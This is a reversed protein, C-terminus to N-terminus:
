RLITMPLTEVHGNMRVVCWYNGPALDSGDFAFSHNEVSLEGTYLSAVEAGLSNVISIEAYGSETATFSIQTYTSFPNPFSSLRELNIDSGSVKALAILNSIPRRWVGQGIYPVLNSVTTVAAFVYPGLTDFPGVMNGYGYLNGTIEIFHSGSDISLFTYFDKDFPNNEAFLDSGFFHFYFMGMSDLTTWHTGNDTSRITYDPGETSILITSDLVAVHSFEETNPINSWSGGEDSSYYIGGGTEAWINSGSTAFDYVYFGGSRDYGSDIGNNSPSWNLGLNTSMFVGSYETGAFLTDGLSTIGNIGYCNLMERQWTAGSDGSRFIIGSDRSTAFLMNNVFALGTINWQSLGFNHPLWHNGTDFSVFVGDNAGTAFIVNGAAIISGVSSFRVSPNIQVWTKAGDVSKFLGRTGTAFLSTNIIALQQINLNALGFDQARFWTVGTDTSYFIGVPTGVFLASDSAAISTVSSAIIGSDSPIWSQGGDFSRFITHNTDQLLAVLVTGLSTISSAPTSLIIRWSKASDTSKYIGSSRGQFGWGIGSTAAYLVGSISTISQFGRFSTDNIVNWGGDYGFEQTNWTSGSDSSQWFFYEYPNHPDGIQESGFVEVFQGFACLQDLSTPNITEDQTAFPISTQWSNGEDTSRLVGYWNGLFLSGNGAAMLYTDSAYPGNTQEWQGEASPVASLLAFFLLVFFRNM